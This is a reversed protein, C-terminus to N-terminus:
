RDYEYPKGCYGCYYTHSKSWQPRARSKGCSPCKLLLVSVVTFVGLLGVGICAFIIPYIVSITSLIVCLAISVLSLLLLVICIRAHVRKIM